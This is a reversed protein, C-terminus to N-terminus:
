KFAADTLTWTVVSQFAGVKAESGAMQLEVDTADWSLDTHGKAQNGNEVGFVASTTQGDTAIAITPAVTVDGAKDRVCTKASNANNLHLTAGVLTKQTAKDTFPTAKVAVQWNDLNSGAPRGDYVQLTQIGGTFPIKNNDDTDQNLAKVTYLGQAQIKASVNQMGFNFVKPNKTFALDGEKVVHNADPEGPKPNPDKPDIPTDKDTGPDKPLIDTDGGAQMKIIGNTTKADGNQLADVKVTGALAVTGLAAVCLLTMKKM